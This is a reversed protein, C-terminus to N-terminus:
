TRSCSACRRACLRRAVIAPSDASATASQSSARTTGTTSGRRWSRPPWSAWRPTPTSTRSCPVASSRMRPAAEDPLVASDKREVSGDKKFVLDADFSKIRHAEMFDRVANGEMDQEYRLKRRSSNTSVVSSELTLARIGYEAAYAFAHAEWPGRAPDWSEWALTIGEYAGGMFMSEGDSGARRVSRLWRNRAKPYVTDVAAAIAAARVLGGKSNMQKAM